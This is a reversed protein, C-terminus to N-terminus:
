ITIKEQSVTLHPELPFVLAWKRRCEIYVPVRVYLQNEEKYKEAEEQTDFYNKM